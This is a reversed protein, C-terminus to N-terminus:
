FLESEDDESDEDDEQADKYKKTIEEIRKKQEEEIEKKFIPALYDIVYKFRDTGNKFDWEKVTSTDVDYLESLFEYDKFYTPPTDGDKLEVVNETVLNTKDFKLTATFSQTGNTLFVNLKDKKISCVHINCNFPKEDIKIWTDIDMLNNIFREIIKQYEFDHKEYQITSKLSDQLLKILDNDFALLADERQKIQERQQELAKEYLDKQQEEHEARKVKEYEEPDKKYLLSDRIELMRYEDKVTGIFESFETNEELKEKLKYKLEESSTIDSFFVAPAFKEVKIDCELFLEEIIHTPSFELSDVDFKSESNLVYILNGDPEKSEILHFCYSVDQSFLKLLNKKKSM